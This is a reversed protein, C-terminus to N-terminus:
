KYSEKAWLWEPVDIVTVSGTPYHRSTEINPTASMLEESLATIVGLHAVIVLDGPTGDIARFDEAFIRHFERTVRSQLDYFNESAPMNGRVREVVDEHIAHCDCVGQKVKNM